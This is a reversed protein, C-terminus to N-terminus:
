QNGGLLINANTQGIAKWINQIVIQLSQEYDFSVDSNCLFNTVGNYTYLARLIALQTPDIPIETQEVVVVVYLPNESAYLQKLYNAFATRKEELPTDDTIGLTENDFKLYVQTGNTCMGIKGNSWSGKVHPLYNCWVQVNINGKSNSLNFYRGYYGSQGQYDQYFVENGTVVYKTMNYVEVGKKVDVYDCISGDQTSYMPNTPTYTFPQSQYPTYSLPENGRNLVVRIRCNYTHGIQIRIRFQYDNSENLFMCSSTSQNNEFQLNDNTKTSYVQALALEDNPFIGVKEVNITYEGNQIFNNNLSFLGSNDCTGILSVWGDNELSLTVGNMIRSSPNKWFNGSTPAGDFESISTIPQPYQPNPSPQGGTYPEYETATSGEELQINGIENKVTENISMSNSLVIIKNGILEFTAVKQALSPHAIWGKVSYSDETYVGIALYGGKTYPANQATFTYTGDPLDLPYLWVGYGSLSKDLNEENYVANVDFLNKGTTTVQTSKGYLKLNMMETQYGDTINPNESKAVTGILKNDSGSKYETPTLEGDEGVIMVKGVNDTGQNKDLKGDTALTARDAEQTAKEAQSTAETVKEDITTNAQQIKTDLDSNVQNVKNDFDDNANQVTQEFETAKNEVDTKIQTVTEVAQTSTQADQKVENALQTFEDSHEYDLSDLWEQETGDFGNDLAIQYASKGNTVQFTTTTENTYKITYNDVNESSSTKEISLIGIGNIGTAGSLDTLFTFDNSSKVYLKANDEDEVNSTILVFKGEEVNDKDMQMQIISPYTKYISFGDGTNGKEGKPISINLQPSKKDGSITVEVNANPELTQVEGIQINPIFEGSEVKQNLDKLSKEVDEKLKSTTELSEEVKPKLNILENIIDPNDDIIQQETELGELVKLEALTSNWKRGDEHVAYVIFKIIGKYKYVHESTLWSFVINDGEIEIDDCHYKNPEQNANLYNIYITFESLDNVEDFYRPIEFYIREVNNDNEVGITQLEDPINLVRETVTVRPEDPAFIMPQIGLDKNTNNDLIEDVSKINEVNYKAM